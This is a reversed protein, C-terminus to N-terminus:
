CTLFANSDGLAKPLAPRFIDSVLRIRAPAHRNGARRGAVLSPRAPGRAPARALTRRAAAPRARVSM